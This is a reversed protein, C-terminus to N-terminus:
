AYGEADEEATQEFEVFGATEGGNGEGDDHENVHVGAGALGGEGAKEFDGETNANGEGDSEEYEGGPFFALRGFGGGSRPAPM